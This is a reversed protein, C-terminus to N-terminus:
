AFLERDLIKRKDIYFKEWWAVEGTERPPKALALITKAKKAEKLAVRFHYHDFIRLAEIMYSVAIKRDRILLLNEGNKKDATPSFNYSGLYVRATPKNFDIVIFKHHMRTGSGGTPESKFPEPLTKSIESPYVPYINGDPKQLELGGIKKDAIGYVFLKNNVTIKKIAKRIAGTTQNLFALSYFVNSKTAKEIDQSIEDLLENESAHPSFSLKIDLGSIPLNNWIASDTKGFDKVSDFKWYNEFADIFPQIAKKGNILMANNAQVYLGRWTFNTSGCIAAKVRPGDVVITKNHQLQSMHHRKVQGKTSKILRTEATSEASTDSGHAGSDDIIIWLRKGLKVLREVIEPENLDYAIVRVEAKKDSIADDLLKLIISRAEFGMWSLAEIAQPHTPKYNLGEDSKAPLLAPIGGEVKYNDVFAQSSVFGRTFTVNLKNSYTERNLKIAAQQADGYSFEDASNMYVPMVKYIFDGELEANRPFHIWRFKQIPALLSSIKKQNVKGKLDPFSLRNKLAYFKNGGPEKYEISFGVFDVPPKDKRWNMALLAMGEGRHVKLSFLANANDGTAEFDKSNIATM